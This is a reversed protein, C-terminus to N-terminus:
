FLKAMGPPLPLGATAARMKEAMTQDAKTRAEKCAAVILDELIEVEAPKALSKDIKIGRVVGEGNLTAKVLGGGSQGVFELRQMEEKIAQVKAQIQTAQSLMQMFNKM